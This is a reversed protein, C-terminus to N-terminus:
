SERFEANETFETTFAKKRAREGVLSV